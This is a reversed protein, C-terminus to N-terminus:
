QFPQPKYQLETKHDEHDFHDQSGHAPHGTPDASLLNSESKWKWARSDIDGPCFSAKENEPEHFFHGSSM